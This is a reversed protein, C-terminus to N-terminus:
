YSHRNSMQYRGAVTIFDTSVWTFPVTSSTNVITLYSGSTSGTYLDITTPSAGATAIGEVITTGTDNFQVAFNRSVASAAAAFPLTLNPVGTIASSAGLTFRVSFDCWGDSRHYYGTNTGTTTTVNSWTPTFSQIPEALVVWGTGNYVMLRDTDTEYICRGEISTPRTGSTCTCVVQERVYDDFFASTFSAGDAIGSDPM